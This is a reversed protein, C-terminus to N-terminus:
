GIVEPLTQGKEDKSKSHCRLLYLMFSAIVCYQYFLMYSHVSGSMRYM